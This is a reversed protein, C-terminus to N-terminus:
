PATHSVYGTGATVTIVHGGTLTVTGDAALDTEAANLPRGLWDFGVESGADFTASTIGVGSFSDDGLEITYPQGTAFDTMVTAGSRGPSAPDEELVSWTEAAADFTVWARIGTAVAFQRALTMDKLLQRAALSARADGLRALTPVAAVALIGVISMVAVIEILSFGGSRAFRRDYNPRAFPTM